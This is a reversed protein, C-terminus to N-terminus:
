HEVVNKKKGLLNDMYGQERSGTLQGVEKATMM